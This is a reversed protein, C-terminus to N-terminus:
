GNELCKREPNWNDGGRVAAARGAHMCVLSVIRSVERVGDFVIRKHGARKMTHTFSVCHDIDTNGSRAHDMM